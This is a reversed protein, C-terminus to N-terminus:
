SLLRHRTEHLIAHSTSFPLPGPGAGREHGAAGDDTGADWSRGAILFGCAEVEKGKREYNTPSLRATQLNVKYEEEAGLQPGGRGRGTPPSVEARASTGRPPGRASSITM